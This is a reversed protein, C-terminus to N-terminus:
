VSAPHLPIAINVFPRPAAEIENEMRSTPYGRSIDVLFSNNEPQCISKARV